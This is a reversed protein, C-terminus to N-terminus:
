AAEAGPGERQAAARYSRVWKRIANGSVGYKRGTAEWGLEEIERLLHDYPPREVRRAGLLPRGSRDWRSGCARSCYRQTRTAPRFETGEEYLRSKLTHRKIRSGAVLYEALPRRPARVRDLAARNAAWPDFHSTPIEWIAVWKKLVAHAGGSACMGM